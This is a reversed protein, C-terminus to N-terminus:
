GQLAPKIGRKVVLGSHPHLGENQLASGPGWYSECAKSEGGDRVVSYSARSSSKGDACVTGRNWKLKANVTNESCKLYDQHLQLLAISQSLLSTRSRM